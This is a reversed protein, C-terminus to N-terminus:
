TWCRICTAPGFTRSFRCFMNKSTKPTKNKESKAVTGGLKQRQKEPEMSSLFTNPLKRKNKKSQNTEGTPQLLCLSEVAYTKAEFNPSSAPMPHGSNKRAM